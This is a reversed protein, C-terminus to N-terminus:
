DSSGGDCFWKRWSGGLGNPRLPCVCTDLFQSVGVTGVRVAAKVPEM